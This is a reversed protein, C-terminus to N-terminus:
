REASVYSTDGTYSLSPQMGGELKHNSSKRISPNVIFQHKM